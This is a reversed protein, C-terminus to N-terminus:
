RNAKTVMVKFGKVQINAKLIWSWHRVRQLTRRVCVPVALPVQFGQENYALVGRGSSGAETYLYIGEIFYVETIM